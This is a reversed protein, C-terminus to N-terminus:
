RGDYDSNRGTNKNVSSNAKVYLKREILADNIADRVFQSFNACDLEKVKSEELRVHYLKKVEKM